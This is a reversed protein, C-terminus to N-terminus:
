MLDNMIDYKSAVDSFVEDILSRKQNSSVKQHGFTYDKEDSM